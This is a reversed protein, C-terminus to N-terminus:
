EESPLEKRWSCSDAQKEREGRGENTQNKKGRKKKGRSYKRGEEKREGKGSTPGEYDGEM